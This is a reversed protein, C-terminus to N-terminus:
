MVKLGLEWAEWGGILEGARWGLEITGKLAVGETARERPQWFFRCVLWKSLLAKEGM